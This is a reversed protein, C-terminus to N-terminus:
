GHGEVIHNNGRGSQGYTATVTYAARRFYKESRRPQRDVARAGVRRRGCAGAM